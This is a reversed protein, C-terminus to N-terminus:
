QFLAKVAGWSTAETAVSSFEINGRIEGAGYMDTHINIYVRGANLEGVEFAGVAWTGVKPEGAPLPSLVPGAVGPAANHFHAAVESGVLGSYTINYSVMTGADNLTLTATGSGASPTGASAGDLTATYITEALTPVALLSVALTLTLVRRSFTNM